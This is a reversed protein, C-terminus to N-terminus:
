RFLVFPLASTSKKPTTKIAKENENENPTNESNLIGFDPPV